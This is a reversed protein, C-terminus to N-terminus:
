EKKEEEEVEIKKEEEEEVKEETKRTWVGPRRCERLKEMLKRCRSATRAFSAGINGVAMVEVLPIMWEVDLGECSMAYGVQWGTQLSEALAKLAEQEGTSNAYQAMLRIAREFRAATESPTPTLSPPLNEAPLAADIAPVSLLFEVM